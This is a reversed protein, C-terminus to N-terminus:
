GAGRAVRTGGVKAGSGGGLLGGSGVRSCFGLAFTVNGGLGPAFVVGNGCRSPDVFVYKTVFGVVFAFNCTWTKAGFFALLNGASTSTGPPM